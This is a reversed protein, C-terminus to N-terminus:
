SVQILSFEFCIASFVIMHQRSLVSTCELSMLMYLQLLHFYKTEVSKEGHIHVAEQYSSITYLLIPKTMSQVVIPTSSQHQVRTYLILVQLLCVQYIYVSLNVSVMVLAQLKMAELVANKMWCLLSCHIKTHSFMYIIMM